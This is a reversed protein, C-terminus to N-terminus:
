MSVWHNNYTISIWNENTFKPSFQKRTKKNEQLNSSGGDEYNNSIKRTEHKLLTFLSVIGSWVINRSIPSSPFIMSTGLFILSVFILFSHSQATVFYTM